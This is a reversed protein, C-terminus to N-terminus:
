RRSRMLSLKRLMLMIGGRRERKRKEGKRRENRKREGSM